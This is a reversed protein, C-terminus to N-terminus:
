KSIADKTVNMSMRHKSNSIDFDHRLSRILFNGNYLMDETENKTTKVASVSPITIQVIDGAKVVTTGVVDISLQLASELMSLQSNRSQMLELKNSGYAYQYFEDNFSQDTGIGVTPKLYQKSPFSSVSIGDPDNTALPKTGLHQEESFNDSYNYIHKQYSKSIIDHVILESSFIGTSYNWVTDPSSTIRYGEIASLEAMIDRVGNQTRTGALTSEYKMVPNQAYMNGLTRFNFRSTSEWFFYTSQNFKESVANKMAISVVDFPKANPAIIKKNDASPESYLEKDSDLDTYLMTEVIDSYSGVLTRRVRTRQNIVFERSCFSMTTAQVGNGIEERDDVATILLPNSSYDITNEGGKLNPTAIKLKLYEQGIIPGYSALNYSDQITITGTIAFQNISEFITLGVVASRLNNLQGNALILDCQLINFEGGSRLEKQAM